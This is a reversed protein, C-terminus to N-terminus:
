WTFLEGQIYHQKQLSTKPDFLHGKMKYFCCLTGKHMKLSKIFVYCTQLYIQQHSFYQIVWATFLTKLVM